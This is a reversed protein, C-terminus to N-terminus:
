DVYNGVNRTTGNAPAVILTPDNTANETITYFPVAAGNFTLTVQDGPNLTAGIFDAAAKMEMWGAPFRLTRLGDLRGDARRILAEATTATLTRIGFNLRFRADPVRVQMGGPSMYDYPFVPAAYTGFTGMSTDNYLRVSVEPIRDVSDANPIIELSGLGKQGMAAVIDDHVISRANTFSYPISPDDDAAVKGAPHFVIRGHENLAGRLEVATKFQGGFAGPTSGVVPVIARRTFKRFEADVAIPVDIVGTCADRWTTTANAQIRVGEEVEATVLYRVTVPDSVRHDVQVFTKTTSYYFPPKLGGYTELVTYRLAGTIAKWRVEGNEYRLDLDCFEAAAPLALFLVLTLLAPLKM